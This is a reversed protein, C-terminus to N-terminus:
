RLLDAPQLFSIHGMRDDPEALVAGACGHRGSPDTERDQAPELRKVDAKVVRIEMSQGIRDLLLQLQSPVGCGFCEGADTVNDGDVTRQV